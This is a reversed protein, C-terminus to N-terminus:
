RGGYRGGQITTLEKRDLLAGTTADIVCDISFGEKIGVVNWIFRPTSSTQYIFLSVQNVKTIQLPTEKKWQTLAISAATSSSINPKTDINWRTTDITHPSICAIIKSGRDDLSIALGTNIIDVGRWTQFFGLPEHPGFFKIEKNEMGFLTSNQIIFSKWDKTIAISTSVCLINVVGEKCEFEMNESTTKSLSHIAKQVNKNCASLNNKPPTSKILSRFTANLPPGQLILGGLICVLLILFRARISFASM